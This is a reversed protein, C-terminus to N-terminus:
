GPQRVLCLGACLAVHSAAQPQRQRALAAVQPLCLKASASVCTSFRLFVDTTQSHIKSCRAYVHGSCRLLAGRVKGKAGQSQLRHPSPVERHGMM